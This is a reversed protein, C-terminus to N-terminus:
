PRHLAAPEDVNGMESKGNGIELPPETLLGAAVDALRSADAAPDGHNLQVQIELKRNGIEVKYFRAKLGGSEARVLKADIRPPKGAVLHKPDIQANQAPSLVVEIKIDLRKMKGKRRAPM